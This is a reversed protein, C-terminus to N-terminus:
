LVVLSLIGMIAQRELREALRKRTINKVEIENVFNMFCKLSYTCRGYFEVTYYKKKTKNTCTEVLVSHKLVSLLTNYNDNNNM